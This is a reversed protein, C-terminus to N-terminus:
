MDEDGYDIFKDDTKLIADFGIIELDKVIGNESIIGFSRPRFVLNDLVPLISPNLITIDGILWDGDIRLNKISHTANYKHIVDGESHFGFQGYLTKKNLFDLHSIEFGDEDLIIKLLENKQYFRGGKNIGFKILRKTITNNDLTKIIKRHIEDIIFGTLKNSMTTNEIECINQFDTKIDSSIRIKIEEERM